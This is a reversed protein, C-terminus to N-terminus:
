VCFIDHRRLRRRVVLPFKKRVERTMVALDPFMNHQLSLQRVTVVCPWEELTALANCDLALHTLKRFAHINRGQRLASRM